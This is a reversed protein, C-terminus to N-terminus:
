FTLVKGILSSRTNYNHVLGHGKREDYTAVLNGAHDYFKSRPGATKVTDTDIMMRSIKFTFDNFSNAKITIYTM